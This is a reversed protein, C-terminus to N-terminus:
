EPGPTSMPESGADMSGLVGKCRDLICLHDRVAAEFESNDARAADIAERTAPDAQGASYLAFMVLARRHRNRRDVEILLSCLGAVWAVHLGLWAVKADVLWWALGGLAALTASGWAFARPLYRRDVGKLIQVLASAHDVPKGQWRSQILVAVSFIVMVTGAQLVKSQRQGEYLKWALTCTALGLVVGVTALRSALTRLTRTRKPYNM